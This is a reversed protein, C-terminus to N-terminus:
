RGWNNRDIMGQRAANNELIQQRRDNNREIMRQRRANNRDIMRERRTEGYDGYYHSQEDRFYYGQASASTSAVGASGILTFAAVGGIILSRSNGM